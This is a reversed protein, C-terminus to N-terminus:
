SYILAEYLCPSPSLLRTVYKLIIGSISTDLFLIIIMPHHCKHKGSHKETNEMSKANYIYYKANPFYTSELFM